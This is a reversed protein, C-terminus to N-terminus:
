LSMPPASRVMQYRTALRMAMAAIVGKAPASDSIMPRRGMRSAPALKMIIPNTNTSTQLVTTCSMLLTDCHTGGLYTQSVCKFCVHRERAESGSHNFQARQHDEAFHRRSASKRLVSCEHDEAKQGKTGRNDECLKNCIRRTPYPMEGRIFWM